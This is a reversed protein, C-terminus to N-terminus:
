VWSNNAVGVRTSEVAAEPSTKESAQASVSLTSNGSCACNSCICSGSCAGNCVCNTSVEITSDAKNMKKGLKM